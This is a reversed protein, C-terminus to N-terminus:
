AAAPARGGLARFVVAGAQGQPTVDASIFCDGAPDGRRAAAAVPVGPRRVRPQAASVARRTRPALMSAVCEVIGAAPGWIASIARPRWSRSDRGAGRGLSARHGCGGRPRRGVTSVGHAHMHGLETPHLAPRRSRSPRMRAALAQGGAASAAAIPPRLRCAHGVVEAYIRAGRREAHPRTGRAGPGGGRRGAGDRTRDRDFPRSWRPRIATAPAAPGGAREPACARDEDPARRTGTAGALMM